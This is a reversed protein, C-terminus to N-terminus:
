VADHEATMTPHNKVAKLSYRSYRRSVVVIKRVIFLVRRARGRGM